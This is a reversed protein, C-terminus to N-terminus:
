HSAHTSPQSHEDSEHWQDQDDFWGERRHRPASSTKSQPKNRRTFPTVVNPM